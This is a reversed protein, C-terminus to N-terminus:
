HHIYSITWTMDTANKQRLLSPLRVVLQPGHYRGHQIKVRSQLCVWQGYWLHPEALLFLKIHRFAYVVVLPPILHCRMTDITSCQTQIKTLRREWLIAFCVPQIDYSNNVNLSHSHTLSPLLSLNVSLLSPPKLTPLYPSFVIELINKLLVYSKINCLYSLSSM